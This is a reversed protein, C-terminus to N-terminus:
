REWEVTWGAGIQRRSGNVAEVKRHAGEISRFHHLIALRFGRCHGFFSSLYKLCSPVPLREEEATERSGRSALCSSKGESDWTVKETDDVECCAELLLGSGAQSRATVSSDADGGASGVSPWIMDAM